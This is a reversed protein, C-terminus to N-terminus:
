CTIKSFTQQDVGSTVKKRSIGAVKGFICCSYAADSPADVLSRSPKRSESAYVLTEMLRFTWNTKPAKQKNLMIVHLLQKWQGNLPHMEAM